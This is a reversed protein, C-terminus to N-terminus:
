HEVASPLRAKSYIVSKQLFFNIKKEHNQNWLLKSKLQVHSPSRLSVPLRVSLCKILGLPLNSFSYNYNSSCNLICFPDIIRECDVFVPRSVVCVWLRCCCTWYLLLHHNFTVSQLLDEDPPRRHSVSTKVCGFRRCVQQEPFSPPFGSMGGSGDASGDWVQVLVLVSSRWVSFFM